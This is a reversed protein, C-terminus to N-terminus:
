MTSIAFNKKNVNEKSQSISNDSVESTTDALSEVNLVGQHMGQSTKEIEDSFVFSSGDPLLRQPGRSLPHNEEFFSM